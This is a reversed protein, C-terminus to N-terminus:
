LATKIIESCVKTIIVLFLDLMYFQGSEFTVSVCVLLIIKILSVCLLTEAAGKCYKICKKLSQGMKKVKRSVM